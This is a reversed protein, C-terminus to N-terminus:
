GFVDFFLIHKMAKQVAPLRDATFVLHKLQKTAEQRNAQMDTETTEKITQLVFLCAPLCAPLSALLLCALLCVSLCVFMFDGEGDPGM